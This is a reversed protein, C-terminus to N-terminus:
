LTIVVGSDPSIYIVYFIEKVLMGMKQRLLYDNTTEILNVKM